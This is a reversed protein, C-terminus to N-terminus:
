ISSVQVWAEMWIWCSNSFDLFKVINHFVDCLIHSTNMIIRHTGYYQLILQIWLLFNDWGAQISSIGEWQISTLEPFVIFTPDKQQIFFLSILVRFVTQNSFQFFFGSVLNTISLQMNPYVKIKEGTSQFLYLRWKTWNELRLDERNENIESNDQIM